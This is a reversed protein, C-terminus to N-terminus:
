YGDAMDSARWTGQELVLEVTFPNAVRGDCQRVGNVRVGGDVLESSQVRVEGATCGHALRKCFDREERMARAENTLAAWAATCDGLLSAREFAEAARLAAGPVAPRRPVVVAVVGAVAALVFAGIFLARKVTTM